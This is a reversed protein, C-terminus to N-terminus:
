CILGSNQGLLFVALFGFFMAFKFSERVSISNRDLM